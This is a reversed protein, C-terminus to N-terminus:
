LGRKPEPALAGWGRDIQGIEIPLETTLPFARLDKAGGDAHSCQIGSKMVRKAQRVKTRSFRSSSARASSGNAACNAGSWALYAETKATARCEAPRLPTCGRRQSVIQSAMRAVPAGQQRKDAETAFAGVGEASAYACCSAQMAGLSGLTT